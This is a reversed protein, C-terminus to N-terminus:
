PMNIKHDDPHYRDFYRVFHRPDVQAFLSPRPTYVHFKGDEHWSGHAPDDMLKSIKDDTREEIEPEPPPEPAPEPHQMWQPEVEEYSDSQPYDQMGRQYPTNGPLYEEPERQLKPGDPDGPRYPGRRASYPDDPDEEEPEPRVVV